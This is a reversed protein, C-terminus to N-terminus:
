VLDEWHLPTGKSLACKAKRGLVKHFEKPPMGDAPRISRINATTLAEGEAIDEVVFLSRRFKLSEAEKPSPGYSVTGLAQETTRVAEVMRRFEDSELSFAADASAVSRDLTFHKEIICAGLAVAAVPIEIDLNHDSLGVPVRFRHAMDPITRLNMSQAPAPYASCCKLLAIETAGAQQAANIAEGIEVATAMGTSIILPKGTAAAKEIFPIDVIEFSAIKYAPVEMQELFDIATHDFPSSFLDIGIEDSLKKLKPQWEWPTYAEKYLQYLNKGAWLSDQNHTFSPKNSDITITDPTYTQLKVADAGASKAVRIMESALEFDQRHNASLEAILYTPEGSGIKRGNIYICPHSMKM